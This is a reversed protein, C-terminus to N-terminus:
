DMGGMTREAIRRMLPLEHLPRGRYLERALVAFHFDLGEMLRGKANQERLWFATWACREAWTERNPECFLELVRRVLRERGKLRTKEMFDVVEQSEEFWSGTIRSLDSWSDSTQVIREVTGTDDTLIKEEGILREVLLAGDLREPVWGTAVIAEALQLLGVAPPHGSELGVALHHRIAAHLFDQSVELFFEQRGVQRFTASAESRSILPTLWADAIGVGQKLLVGGIRSKGPKVPMSLLLSQAGVGDMRSSQLGHLTLGEPWSACEVGKIRTAKILADLLKREADPLWNRIVILRRLATPTMSRANRLLWQLAERRVSEEAHLCLVVVADKMGPLTSCAFEGILASQAELPLARTMQSLTEGIAFPDGGHESVLNEFMADIQHRTPLDERPTHHMIRQEYIELLAKTPELKAESLSEVIGALLQPPLPDAGARRVVMAQFERDLEMAWEFRRELGFRINRLAHSLLMFYATVLYDDPTDTGAFAESLLQLLEFVLVPQREFSEMAERSIMAPREKALERAIQAAFRRLGELPADGGWDIGDSGAKDGREPRLSREWARNVARILVKANDIRESEQLFWFFAVLVAPMSLLLSDTLVGDAPLSELCCREVTSATWKEPMRGHRRVMAGMFAEIIRACGRRQITTLVGFPGSLVFEGIWTEVRNRFSEGDPDWHDKMM